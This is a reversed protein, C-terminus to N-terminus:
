TSVHASAARKKQSSLVVGQKERVRKEEGREKGVKEGRVAENERKEAGPVEM